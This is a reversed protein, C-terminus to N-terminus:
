SKCSFIIYESCCTKQVLLLAGGLLTCGQSISTFLVFVVKINSSFDVFLLWLFIHEVFLTSVLTQLSWVVRYYVRDIHFESSSFTMFCFEMAMGCVYQSRVFSCLLVFLEVLMINWLACMYCLLMCVMTAFLGCINNWVYLLYILLFVLALPIIFAWAQTWGM